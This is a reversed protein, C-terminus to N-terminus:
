DHGTATATSPENNWTLYTHDGLKRPKILNAATFLAGILICIGGVVIYAIGMFSNKGGMVTRTSILISKTGGFETVNFRSQIDLRYQGAAMATTDNRRALKSFTPLGATRMWVMFAEDDGLKPFNEATYEPYKVRWNPPPVVQWYEYQTDKIIQKDSPWAIGKDTMNYVGENVLVPSSITDNFISNAILGCPYYAKGTAADTTLPDCTSGSITANSVVKGALQDTDLSAVYKRHNQYFDTLKYYLYVPPGLSDPLDFFLSCGTTNTAYDTENRQWTYLSTQATSKFTTQVKDSPIAAQSSIPAQTDCDTYDIILEQVQENAWLLVGGLPAFIAGIGFFLPLVSRPTLIPQWAKLRQQRFATNAPKRSKSKKDGDDKGSVDPDDNQFTSAMTIHTAVSPSSKRYTRTSLRRYLCTSSPKTQSQPPHPLSHGSLANIARTTERIQASGRHVVATGYPRPVPDGLPM